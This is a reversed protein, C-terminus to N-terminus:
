EAAHQTVRAELREIAATLRARQAKAGTIVGAMGLKAIEPLKPAVEFFVQRRATHRMATPLRLLAANLRLYLADDFVQEWLPREPGFEFDSERAAHRPAARLAQTAAADLQGNAIVVGYDRRAGEASVYGLRVDRLVLDVDRTFPDGFGGGGATLFTVEDDKNALYM